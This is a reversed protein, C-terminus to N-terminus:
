TFSSMQLFQDSNVRIPESSKQVVVQGDGLDKTVLTNAGLFCRNGINVSNAVTANMAFFCNVGVNVSGGISAHGTIWCNDGISSHHGILAGNWVFVNDGLRVKPQVCVDTTILCNEGIEVDKPLRANKDVFSMIRYGKEKARAMTDARFANMRQYGLAIFMECETPPWQHQVEDFPIVPLGNSPNADIYDRDCTFAVVDIESDQSMYSHVVDGM